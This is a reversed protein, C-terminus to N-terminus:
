GDFFSKVAFMAATEAHTFALSKRRGEPCLAQVANVFDAAASKIQDVSDANTNNFTGILEVGKSPKVADKDNNM